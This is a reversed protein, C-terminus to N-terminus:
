VKLGLSQVGLGLAWVYVTFRFQLDLSFLKSVKSFVLSFSTGHISVHLWPSFNIFFLTTIFILSTFFM